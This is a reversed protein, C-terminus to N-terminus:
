RLTSAFKRQFSQRGYSISYPKIEPPVYTCAEHALARITDVDYRLQHLKNNVDSFSMQSIERINGFAVQKIEANLYDLSPEFASVALFHALVAPDM